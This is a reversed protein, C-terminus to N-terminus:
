RSRGKGKVKKRENELEATIFVNAEGREHVYKGILVRGGGLAISDKAANAIEDLLEQRRDSM